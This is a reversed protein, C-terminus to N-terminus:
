GPTPRGPPGGGSGAVEVEAGTCVALFERLSRLTGRRRRLDVMQGVLARQRELQWNELLHWGALSGCSSTARRADFYADFAAAGGRSKKPARHRNLCREPVEAKM